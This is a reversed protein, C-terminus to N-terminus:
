IPNSLIPAVDSAVCTEGAELGANFHEEDQSAVIPAVCEDKANRLCNEYEAAIMYLHPKLVAGRRGEGKERSGL